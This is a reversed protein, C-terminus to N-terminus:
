SQVYNFAKWLEFHKVFPKNQERKSIQMKNQNLIWAPLRDLSQPKM